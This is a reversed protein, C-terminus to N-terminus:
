ADLEWRGVANGNIDYLKGGDSLLPGAGSDNYDLTDAVVRLLRAVEPSPDGDFAANDTDISLTFAM